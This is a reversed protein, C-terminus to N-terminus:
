EKVVIVLKEVNAIDVSGENRPVGDIMKWVLDPHKEFISKIIEKLQDPNDELIKTIKTTMSFSGKPRGLPNATGQIIQGKENRVVQLKSTKDQQTIIHKEM